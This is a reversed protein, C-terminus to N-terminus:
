EDLLRKLEALQQLAELPTMQNPDLAALEDRLAVLKPDPEGGQVHGGLPPGAVRESEARESAADDGPYLGAFLPLQDADRTKKKSLAKTHSERELGRELEALVERSRDIVTKPIGALRAVHLGYSKSAGGPVIKHLFVIGPPITSQASAVSRRLSPAVFPTASQRDDVTRESSDDPPSTQAFATQGHVGEARALQAGADSRKGM